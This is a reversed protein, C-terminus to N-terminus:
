PQSADEIIRIVARVVPLLASPEVKDLTDDAVLLYTPGSIYQVFPLGMVYLMNGEGPPRDGLANAPVVLTRELKEEAVAVVVAKALEASVFLARSQLNGTPSWQGDREVFERAGVHEIALALSVNRILGERRSLLFNEMGREGYFHGATVCFVLKAPRQNEPLRAYYSALALVCAVGTADEIAGAFPSDHHSNIIISRDGPGPLTGIINAMIGPRARGDLLFRGRAGAACLERLRAGDYKGVYLGPLPKAQGDYPAYYTNVNTPQDALIWVVAAAGGKVALDYAQWNPRVWTAYQWEGPAFSGKPDQVHYAASKLADLPLRGFRLDFVAIKGALDTAAIVEPAGEGLYVLPANIGQPSTFATYPVYFCPIDHERGHTTVTLRWRRPQWVQIDVPDVSIDQLGLRRFEDALYREARHGEPTGPRRHQTRCLEQVWQMVREQPPLRSDDLCWGASALATVVVALALRAGTM